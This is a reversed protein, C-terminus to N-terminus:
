TAERNARSGKPKLRGAPTIPRHTRDTAWHDRQWVANALAGRFAEVEPQGTPMPILEYCDVRLQLTACWAPKPTFKEVTGDPLWCERAARLAALQLQMASFTQTVPRTLSTKIDILVAERQGDPLRVAAGDIFAVGLTLIADLTGAYGSGPDAVTMEAAVVDRNPDVGYDALFRLYQGVFQGAVDDLEPDRAVPKNLLHAEALHHVRSGMEAAADRVGEHAGKIHRTLCGYCHGCLEQKYLPMKPDRCDSGTRSAAVMRPLQAWAEEAACRAAWGPLGAKSMAKDLVNTVSILEQGTVPHTYHRGRATGDGSTHRPSTM